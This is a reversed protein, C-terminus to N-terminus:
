YSSSFGKAKLMAHIREYEEQDERRLRENEVPDDSVRPGFPSIVELDESTGDEYIRIHQDGAIRHCMYFDLYEGREDQGFLYTVVDGRGYDGDDDDDGGVRGRRRHLVDDDPLQHGFYSLMEDFTAQLLALPKEPKPLDQAM